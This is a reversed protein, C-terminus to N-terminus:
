IAIARGAKRDSAYVYAVGPPDAGGWHGTAQAVPGSSVLRLVHAAPISSWRRKTPSCSQGAGSSAWSASM